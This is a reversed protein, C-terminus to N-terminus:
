GVLPEGCADHLRRRARSLRSKLASRTLGTKRVLDDLDTRELAYDVLQTWESAGLHRLGAADVRALARAADLEDLPSRDDALAGDDLEDLSIRPANRKRRARARAQVRWVNRAVGFVWADLESEGRYRGLSRFIEVFADQVLDEADVHAPIRRTAWGHLRRAYRDYLVEFEM